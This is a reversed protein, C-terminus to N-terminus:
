RRNCRDGEEPGRAQPPGPYRWRHLRWCGEERPPRALYKTPGPSAQEDALDAPRRAQERDSAAVCANVLM